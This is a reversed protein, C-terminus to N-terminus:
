FSCEHITFGRRKATKFRERLLSVVDDDSDLLVTVFRHHQRTGYKKTFAVGDVWRDVMSVM